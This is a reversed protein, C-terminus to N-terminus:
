YVYHMSLEICLITLCDVSAIVSVSGKFSQYNNEDSLDSQKGLMKLGNKSSFKLYYYNPFKPLSKHPHQVKYVKNDLLILQSVLYYNKGVCANNKALKVPSICVLM